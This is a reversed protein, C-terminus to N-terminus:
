SLFIRPVLMRENRKEWCRAGGGGRERERSPTSYGIASARVTSIYLEVISTPSISRAHRSEESVEPYVSDRTRAPFPKVSSDNLSRTYVNPYVRQATTHFKHTVVILRSEVDDYRRLDPLFSTTFNEKKIADHEVFLFRLSFTPFPM